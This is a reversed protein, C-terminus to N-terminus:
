IDANTAEQFFHTISLTWEYNITGSGTDTCYFHLWAELWTRFETLKFTAKRNERNKLVAVFIASIHPTEKLHTQM